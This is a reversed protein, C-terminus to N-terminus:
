FHDRKYEGTRFMPMVSFVTDKLQSAALCLLTRLNANLKFSLDMRYGFM